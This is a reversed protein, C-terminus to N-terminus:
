IQSTKLWLKKFYMKMGRKRRSRPSRNHTPQCVKDSVWHVLIQAFEPLYDLVPFGPTSCDIPYFLTPWLKTVSCCFLIFTKKYQKWKKKIKRETQEESQTFTNLDSLWMHSKTVEHVICNMSNELGSYQLLYGKGEGPFRGLEHISGLDGANCTSEKGASGHPFGLFVPTPLMDRRWRINGVWSDFQSIESQSIEM